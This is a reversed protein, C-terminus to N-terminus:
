NCAELASLDSAGPAVARLTRFVRLALELEFRHDPNDLHEGVFDRIIRMRYKVSSPHLHLLEAAQAPSGGTALYAQLTDALEGGFRPDDLLPGLVRRVYALLNASDPHGLIIEALGGEEYVAVDPLVLVSGRARRLDALSRAQHYSRRIGALGPLAAGVTIGEIGVGRAGNLVPEFARAWRSASWGSADLCLCVLGDRTAALRPRVGAWEGPLLNRLCQERDAPRRGSRTPSELLFAVRHPSAVDIGLHRAWRLLETEPFDDSTFLVALVFAAESGASAERSEVELAAAAALLTELPPWTVDDLAVAGEPLPAALCLYAVLTEQGDHIPIATDSPKGGDCGRRWSRTQDSSPPAATASGALVTGNPSVLAAEVGFAGAVDALLGDVDLDALRRALRVLFSRAAQEAALRRGLREEVEAARQREVNWAVRDLCSGLAGVIAITVAEDTPLPEDGEGWVVAHGAPVPASGWIDIAGAADGANPRQALFREVDHRRDATLPYRREEGVVVFESGRRMAVAALAAGSLDALAGAALEALRIPDSACPLVASLLYALRSGAGAGGWCAPPACLRREGAVFDEHSALLQLLGRGSLRRLDHLCLARSDTPSLVPHTLETEAALCDRAEQREAAVRAAGPRSSVAVLRGTAPLPEFADVADGRDDSVVFLSAEPNFDQAAAVV